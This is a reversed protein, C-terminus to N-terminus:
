DFLGHGNSKSIRGSATNRRTKLLIIRGQIEMNKTDGRPSTPFLPLLEPVNQPEMSEPRHLEQWGAKENILPTSDGDSTWNVEFPSPNPETKRYMMADGQSSVKCKLLLLLGFFRPHM